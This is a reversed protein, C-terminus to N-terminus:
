GPRNGPLFEQITTMLQKLKVPKSLYATAGAALCRDCDGEMALATLAIIPVEALHPIHRITQTAELGNIGPMQIDMLILAPTEQNALTIAEQGNRALAVRYGKAELYASISAINAENDEALLLLPATTEATPASDNGPSLEVFQPHGSSPPPPSVAYPLDVIFCSGADVDSIVVVKGGHLEVIHKVLALGLGTGEYKRNLASDIQTFPQFLKGQDEPAIGIGTDTVSLRIYPTEIGRASASCLSVALTVYGGEPTFKVANTLLNILVQRIRREDMPIPPMQSPLALRLQLRKKFAQQKVFALSSRCLQPVDTPALCLDMHGAEIKSLDLIDNILELLHTGSTQITNLAKLQQENLPGFVQEELGEGMGLIANLPTRLEHSMNALFEDKLRTARELTQNAQRLKAEAQKRDTIDYGVGLYAVIRGDKDWQPSGQSTHWRWTGDQHRVRYEPGQHTDGGTLILRLFNLCKDRDEPHVLPEFSKGVVEDLEYGLINTLSPSVYTFVGEPSLTYIISNANEVYNRFKEESARLQMEAAKRDSINIHCGIMRLPQRDDDWEIVQGSCIVWVTSGDKHCYRVEQQFPEQGHSHIHREVCDLVKPLDEPFILGQWTDPQNPLEHDDYGLMRKFGSSYYEQNGRIDWDWYGALILDFIDELLRLERRMQVNAWREAEARKHDSIDLAIGLIQAATGDANRTLVLERSLGTRTSGDKCCVKYEQEFIQGSTDKRIQHEQSLMFDYADPHYITPLFNAGMAKIEDLSYGLLTEYAPNCFAMCDDNLDYVFIAAPVVDTVARRFAESRALAAKTRKRETIDHTIGLIQRIEGQEDLLPVYQVVITYTEQGPLTITCEGTQYQKTEVTRLLLPLYASTVESPFMEEDTHGLFDALSYHSLSLGAANVFQMRRQADYIVFVDPIHDLATRFRMESEYLNQSAQELALTREVVRRELTANAEHLAYELEKQQAMDRAICYLEGREPQSSVSWALYRYSGDKALVRNEFNFSSITTKSGELKALTACRDEPHVLEFVPYALLEAETYGLVKVWAPNTRKFHGKFDVIALLDPSLDFFLAKESTAPDDYHSSNTYASAM